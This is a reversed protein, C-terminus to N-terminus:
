FRYRLSFQLQFASESELPTWGHQTDFRFVPQAQDAAGPTGPVHELLQPVALRNQGWRRNLLNLLNFLEIGAELTRDGLPINQRVAAITTHSWPERCSNRELIRGRQERLCQSGDIFREFAAQQESVRVAQAAPSNDADPEDLRGTFRIELSDVVNRPVYIPDNVNSGDANLDGLGREGKAVYTFPSGSEGVYYLSFSTSARQWPARYTLAAVVRHPLDNLSVENALQDHRGSLARADGWMFLGTTGIRSLSAVDRTRSFTYSAIAATGRSFRREVRASLQYSYNKSTNVLDIVESLTTDRLAPVPMGDQRFTGYLVRGFRDVPRPGLLNLNVSRFDSVHRNVLVEGTVLFDGPLRRDYALAARLTQAMRLNRDLLNVAGKLARTGDGSACATPAKRYDPEFPPPLDNGRADCHLSRIGVGDNSLAPLIWALPPRGTFLGVGGRLQDPGAASPNWTFGVRPSVHVRARPMEDTRREFLADVAENYPAHNSIDLLDARVGMTIALGPRARWEDSIWAAYQGGSLAPTANGLNTRLDYGSAVGREFDDLSEFLWTGYSGSVGGRTVRFREAQAGVRLLHTGLPLSADDRIRFSWARNVNGQADDPTGTRLTITDVRVRVLPQLVDPLDEFRDASHSISLENHAGSKGPLDSRLQVSVLRLSSSVTYKYSSLPFDSAGDRSFVERDSGAYTLFASARSRWRPIAADVRTYLNHLPNTVQVRGASGSVLKHRRMLTDLRAISAESVPVTGAPQGLYRGAAPRVLRQLESAVFFHVGDRVIPGGLTFGYQLRDYPSRMTDARALRDNRWYLFTAGRLENTGSNAVTNVITGAFDGFRVDFPATLVQYEKVAEIPISKGANFTASVNSHIQREEVGNISFNNFRFNAGAASVGIRGFGVRTSAQPTLRLFDQFNRNLTPLRQLLSDGMTTATGGHANFRPFAANAVVTLGELAVAQPQLVLPLELPEGLKLYIQQRRDPRFGIRNVTVTYPGGVDLGDAHFRGRTVVPKRVDGTATNVIRVRVGEISSGDAAVVSGRISVTTVGQALLNGPVAWAGAVLIVIVLWRLPSWAETVILEV